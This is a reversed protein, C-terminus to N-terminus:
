SKKKNLIYIMVVFSILSVAMWSYFMINYGSNEILLGYIVSSIGAGGYTAFDMIGSVSAVNNSATFRLPYISLMSTNIVSIFAYILSLLLAAILPSSIFDLALLLSLASCILFSYLSVRHENDKALKLIAPYITRGIFGIAPIFLVFYASESLNILFRETFYLVMWLSINDKIVGHLAAPILLTTIEKNKFVSIFSKSENKEAEIPKVKLTLSFLLPAAILPLCGPIFFAAAVNINEVLYSSLIIGAINGTAVSTVLLTTRKKATVPEFASVIVRLLSSWLMSQAFANIGWLIYLIYVPPFLGFLVNSIGTLALGTTIMIYPAVRDSIFGNILRGSAYVISFISGMIGIQAANLLFSAKLEPTAVSLNLRAAYIATYAIYCMIFMLNKKANKM